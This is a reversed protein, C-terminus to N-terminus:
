VLPIEGTRAPWKKIAREPTTVILETFSNTTAFLGFFRDLVAAFLYAGRGPFKVPDLQVTVEVGRCLGRGPDMPVRGLVRRYRVDLLGEVIQQAQDKLHKQGAAPDSFDYLRLIDRLAAPGDSLALPSPSLHSVIEWAGGRRMAPRLPPSPARLCRVRNVPAPLQLGWEVPQSATGIRLPLDRNTCLVQVQLLQDAPWASEFPLNVLSVDMDTGSDNEV